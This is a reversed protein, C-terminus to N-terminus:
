EDQQCIDLKKGFRSRTACRSPNNEEWGATDTLSKGMQCNQNDLRGRLVCGGMM